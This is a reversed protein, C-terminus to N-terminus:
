DLAKRSKIFRLFTRGLLLYTLGVSIILSTFIGMQVSQFFSTAFILTLIFTIVFLAPLSAIDQLPVKAKEINGNPEKVAAIKKLKRNKSFVISYSKGVDIISDIYDDVSVDKIREDGIEWFAYQNYNTRRGGGSEENRSSGQSKKKVIGEVIMKVSNKLFNKNFYGVSRM